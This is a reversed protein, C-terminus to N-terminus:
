RSRSRGSSVGQLCGSPEAVWSLMCTHTRVCVLAGVGCLQTMRLGSDVLM